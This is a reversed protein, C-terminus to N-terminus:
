KSEVYVYEHQADRLTLTRKGSQTGVVFPFGISTPDFTILATTGDENERSAVASRWLGFDFVLNGGEHRVDIHGLDPNTYRAALAAAAKPAVPVVLKAREKALSARQSAASAAVNGAAEPRGDYVLELLRRKFPGILSQGEDANTLIVAGVGADPLLLINSKYGAMSGGHEVVSVGTRHDESLGMGYSEDEGTPVGPARRALLNQESVLQRGDPLKGRALELQVYKILDHASSWAGGAPRYPM